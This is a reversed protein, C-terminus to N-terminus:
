QPRDESEPEPKENGEPKSEPATAPQGAGDQQGTSNERPLAIARLHSNGDIGDLFLIQNATTDYTLVVAHAGVKTDFLQKLDATRWIRVRQSWTSTAVFRGDNSLTYNKNLPDEALLTTVGKSDRYFLGRLPGGKSNPVDWLTSKTTPEFEAPDFKSHKKGKLDYVFSDPGPYTPHIWLFKGSRDFTMTRVLYEYEVTFRINHTRTDIFFVKTSNGEDPYTAAVLTLGDPAVVAEDWRLNGPPCVYTHQEKKESINWQHLKKNESPHSVFLERSASSFAFVNVGDRKLDLLDRVALQPPANQSFGATVFALSALLLVAQHIRRTMNQGLLTKIGCAAKAPAEAARPMLVQKQPM